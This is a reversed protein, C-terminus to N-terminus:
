RGTRTKGSFNKYQFTITFTVGGKGKKSSPGSSRGSSRGPPGSGPKGSSGGSSAASVKGTSLIEVKALDKHDRLKEQFTYLQDSSQVQGTVTVRQGKKFNVSNLLVGKEGSGNVLDLLALMDPRERAVTKILTQREVLADLDTNMESTSAEIRERIAEPSKLDLVYSVILLGLLMVSALTVTVKLSTLCSQKKPQDAAPQYVNKFLNLAEDGNDMAMLGLGIPVRYAHICEIGSEGPLVLRQADPIAVRANLDALKLSSVIRAYVPSNDSLLLVPLTANDAYGFFDLVSRIDQAFRETVEDHPQQGDSFGELGSDLVVSNGMSDTRAAQDQQGISFDELGSDLIVANSLCENEVLCVQTNRQGMSVLIAKEEHESFVTAWAKVMAECDLLIKAPDLCRVNEAFRQLLTKRAVAMTVDMQGNRSPAIRWALETQDAPLPLRTEAQFQVISAIEKDDVSPMSARHFVTGSSSFGVVVTKGNRAKKNRSPGASVGCEAAFSTWDSDKNEASKAWLVELSGRKMQLEIGKFQGDERLMAVVPLGTGVKTKSDNMNNM